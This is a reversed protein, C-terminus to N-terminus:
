CKAMWGRNEPRKPGEFRLGRGFADHYRASRRARPARDAHHSRTSDHRAFAAVPRKIARQADRERRAIRM